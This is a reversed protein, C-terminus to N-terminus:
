QDSDRVEVGEEQEPPLITLSISPGQVTKTQEQNMSDTMRLFVYTGIVSVVIILVLIIAVVERRVHEQKEEDM